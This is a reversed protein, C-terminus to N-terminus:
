SSFPQKATQQAARTKRSKRFLLLMLTIAVAILALVPATFSASGYYGTLDPLQGTLTKSVALRM